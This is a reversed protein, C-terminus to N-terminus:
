FNQLDSAKEYSEKQIFLQFANETAGLLLLHVDLLNKLKTVPGILSRLTNSKVRQIIRIRM